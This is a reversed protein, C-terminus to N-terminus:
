NDTETKKEKNEKNDDEKFYLAFPIDITENNGQFMMEVVKLLDQQTLKVGCFLHNTEAIKNIEEKTDELLKREREVEAKEVEVLEEYKTKLTELKERLEKRKRAM